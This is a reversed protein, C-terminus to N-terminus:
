CGELSFSQWKAAGLDKSGIQKGPPDQLLKSHHM